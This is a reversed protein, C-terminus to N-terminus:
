RICILPPTALPRFVATPTIQTAAANLYLAALLDRPSRILPSALATSLQRRGRPIRTLDALCLTRTLDM